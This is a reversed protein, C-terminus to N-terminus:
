DPLEAELRELAERAYEFVKRDGSLRYRANAGMVVAYLEFAFREPQDVGAIGPRTATVLGTQGDGGGPPSRVQRHAEEPWAVPVWGPSSSRSGSGSYSNWSGNM